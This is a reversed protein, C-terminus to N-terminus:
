SQPTLAPMQFAFRDDPSWVHEDDCRYGRLWPQGDIVRLYFGKPFEHDDSVVACAVTLSGAPAKGASMVSDPASAQETVALRLYPGTNAPCLLLGAARAADFIQPLTAGDVLGLEAVTREVLVLNQAVSADDFAAEALLTEAHSNRLIGHTSLKTALAERSLGGVLLEIRANLLTNESVM